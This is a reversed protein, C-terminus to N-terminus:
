TSGFHPFYVNSCKLRENSLSQGKRILKFSHLVSPYSKADTDAIILKSRYCALLRLRLFVKLSGIHRGVSAM